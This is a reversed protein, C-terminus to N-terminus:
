KWLLFKRRPCHYDVLLKEYLFLYFRIIIYNKSLQKLVFHSKEVTSTKIAPFSCHSKQQEICNFSKWRLPPSNIEQVLLHVADLAQFIVFINVSALNFWKQMFSVDRRLVCLLIQPQSFNRDRSKLKETKIKTKIKKRAMNLFTSSPPHKLSPM